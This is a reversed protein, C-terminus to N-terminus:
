RLQKKFYVFVRLQVAKNRKEAIYFFKGKERPKQGPHNTPGKLIAM